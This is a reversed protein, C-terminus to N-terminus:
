EELKRAVKEQIYFELVDGKKLDQFNEVAIGCEFGKEVERVDEKFRKLSSNKGEFVIANNRLVRIFANRQLKGEIVYSGAIAGFQQVRFVARIEARGLTVEKELPELLGEMAARIDSLVEYMIRYTKISIEERQAM